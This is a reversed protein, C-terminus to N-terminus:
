DGVLLGSAGLQAGSQYAATVGHGSSDAASAGSSEDLRYYALPHDALVATKYAVAPTSASAPQSTAIATATVTGFFVLCLAVSISASRSRGRVAHGRCGWGARPAPNKGTSRKARLTRLSSQAIDYLGM